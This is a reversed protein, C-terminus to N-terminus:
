RRELDHAYRSRTANHEMRVRNLHQTYEQCFVECLDPDMLRTSLASLVRNEIERELITMRNDCTGKNRATSCGYRDKAIISMGGGCCGCKLMNSFVHAPRRKDRPNLARDLGSQYARAQDWLEQDVIRLHPVEVRTVATGSNMRAARAGTTPDKM